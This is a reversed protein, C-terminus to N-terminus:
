RDTDARLKRGTNATFPTTVNGPDLHVLTEFFQQNLLAVRLNSSIPEPDVFRNATVVHKVQHVKYCTLVVEARDSVVIL